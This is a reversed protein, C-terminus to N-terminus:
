LLSMAAVGGSHVHEPTRIGRTQAARVHPDEAQLFPQTMGLNELFRKFAVGLLPKTLGDAVLDLGRVHILKWQGSGAPGPEEM